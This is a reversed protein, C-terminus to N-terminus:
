YFLKGHQKDAKALLEKARELSVNNEDSMMEAIVFVM